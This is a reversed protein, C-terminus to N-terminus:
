HQVPPTSPARPLVEDGVTAAYKTVPAFEAHPTVYRSRNQRSSDRRLQGQQMTALQLWVLIKYDFTLCANPMACFHTVHYASRWQHASLLLCHGLMPWTMSCCIFHLSTQVSVIVRCNQGESPGRSVGTHSGLLLRHCEPSGHPKQPCGVPARM